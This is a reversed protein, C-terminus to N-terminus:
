TGALLKEKLQEKKMALVQSEIAQRVAESEGGEESVLKDVVECPDIDDGKVELSDAWTGKEM